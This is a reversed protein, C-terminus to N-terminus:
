KFRPPVEISNIVFTANNLAEQRNLTAKINFDLNKEELASQCAQNILNLAAENIDHLVITSGKLVQSSLISGVTGLGFQLSGAGILVIKESM